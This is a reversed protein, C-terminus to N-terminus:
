GGKEILQTAKLKGVAAEIATNILWDKAEIGMQICDKKIGEFAAKQREPGSMASGMLIRVHTIALNAVRDRVARESLKTIGAIVMAGLVGVLVELLKMLLANM